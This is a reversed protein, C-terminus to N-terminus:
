NKTTNLSELGVAVRLIRRADTSNIIGDLNIDALKKSEDSLFELGVSARLILRADSATVEGDNDVDGAKQADPDRVACVSCSGNAFRHGSSSINETYFVTCNNCAFTKIGDTTCTPNKTVASSFSHGYSQIKETYASSCNGCSYTKVGDTTCTPNKTM